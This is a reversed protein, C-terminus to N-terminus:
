LTYLFFLVNKYKKESHHPHAWQFPWGTLQEVPECSPPPPLLPSHLNLKGPLIGHKTLMLYTRYASASIEIPRERLRQEDVATGATQEARGRQRARGRSRGQLPWLSGSILVGRHLDLSPLAQRPRHGPLFVLLFICLHDTSRATFRNKIHQVDQNSQFSRPALLRFLWVGPLNARFQDRIAAHALRVSTPKGTLATQAAVPNVIEQDSPHCKLTTRFGLVPHQIVQYVFSDVARCKILQNIRSQLYLKKLWIEHQGLQKQSFRTEEQLLRMKKLPGLGETLNLQQQVIIHLLQNSIEGLYLIQMWLLLIYLLVKVWYKCLTVRCRSKWKKKVETFNTM